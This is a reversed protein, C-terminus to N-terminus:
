ENLEGVHTWAQEVARRANGRFSRKAAPRQRSRLARNGRAWGSSGGRVGCRVCAVGVACVVLMSSQRLHFSVLVGPASSASFFALTRVV